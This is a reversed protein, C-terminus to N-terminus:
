DEILPDWSEGRGHGGKGTCMKSKMKGWPMDKDKKGRKREEVEGKRETRKNRRMKKIEKKGTEKYM